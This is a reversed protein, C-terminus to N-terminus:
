GHLYVWVFVRDNLSNVPYWICMDRGSGVSVADCVVCIVISLCLRGYCVSTVDDHIYYWGDAMVIIILLGGKQCHPLSTLRPPM